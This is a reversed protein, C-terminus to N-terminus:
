KKWNVEKIKKNNEITNKFIKPTPFIPPGRVRNMNQHGPGRLPDM